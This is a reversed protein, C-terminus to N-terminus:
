KLTTLNVDTPFDSEKCYITIYDVWWDVGGEISMYYLYERKSIKDGKGNVFGPYAIEDKLKFEIYPNDTNTIRIKIKNFGVESFVYSGDPHKWCFRITSNTTETSTVSGVVLFFSGVTQKTTQNFVSMRKLEHKGHFNKEWIMQTNFNTCSTFFLIGIAFIFTIKKM